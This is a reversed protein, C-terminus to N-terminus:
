LGSLRVALCVLTDIVHVVPFYTYHTNIKPKHFAVKDEKPDGKHDSNCADKYFGTMLLSLPGCFFIAGQKVPLSKYISM